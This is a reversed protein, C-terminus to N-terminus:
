RSRKLCEYAHYGSHLFCAKWASLVEYYCGDGKGLIDVINTINVQDNVMTVPPPDASEQRACARCYRHGKVSTLM